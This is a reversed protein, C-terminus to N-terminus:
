YRIIDFFPSTKMNDHGLSLSIIRLIFCLVTVYEMPGILDNFCVTAQVMFIDVFYYTIIM